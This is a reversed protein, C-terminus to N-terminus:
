GKAVWLVVLGIVILWPLMSTIDSGIVTGGSTTLTPSSTATKTGGGVTIVGGGWNVTTGLTFPTVFNDDAYYLM